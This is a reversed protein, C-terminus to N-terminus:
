TSDDDWARWHNGNGSIDLVAGVRNGDVVPQGTLNINQYMSAPNTADILAYWDPEDPDGSGGGISNPDTFHMGVLSPQVTVPADVTDDIRYSFEAPPAAVTGPDFNNTAPIELERGLTDDPTVARSISGSGGVGIGLEFFKTADDSNEIVVRLPG